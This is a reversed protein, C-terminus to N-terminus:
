RRGAWGRAAIENMEEISLSPGDERKLIDFVDSIKGTSRVAKVEIRGDPLKDVVIKGGPRVGLHELVDKRLTIQGRATVTLTSM